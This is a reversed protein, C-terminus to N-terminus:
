AEGRPMRGLSPAGIAMALEREGRLSDDFAAFLAVALLALVLGAILAGLLVLWLSPGLPQTPLAPSEVPWVQNGDAFMSLDEAVLRQRLLEVEAEARKTQMLLARHEESDDLGEADASAPPGASVGNSSSNDVMGRREAYERDIEQELQEVRRKAAALEPHGTGLRRRLSYLRRKAQSLAETLRKDSPSGERLELESLKVAQQVAALRAEAEALAKRINEEGRLSSDKSGAIPALTPQDGGRLQELQAEFLIASARVAERQPRVIQERFEDVLANAADIADEPTRGRVKLLILEGGLGIVEFSEKFELVAESIEETAASVPLRGLKRLVSEATDHSEFISQVLPMRQQASWKVVMQKNFPDVTQQDRILLRATTEYQPPIVQWALAACLVTLLPLLLVIDWRRIALHFVAEASLERAGESM